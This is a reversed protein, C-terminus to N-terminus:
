CIKFELELVDTGSKAYVRCLGLREDCVFYELVMVLTISFLTMGAMGGRRHMAETM